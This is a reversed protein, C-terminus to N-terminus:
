LRRSPNFMTFHKRCWREGKLPSFPCGREECKTPPPKKQKRRRYIPDVIMRHKHCWGKYAYALDDCDPYACKPFIRVRGKQYQKKKKFDQRKKYWVPDYIRRHKFCWGRGAVARKGCWPEKCIKKTHYRGKKKAKKKPRAM